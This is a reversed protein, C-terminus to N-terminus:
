GILQENAQNREKIFSLLKIIESSMFSVRGILTSWPKYQQKNKEFVEQEDEEYERLADYNFDVIDRYLAADKRKKNLANPANRKKKSVRFYEKKNEPSVMNVDPVQADIGFGM